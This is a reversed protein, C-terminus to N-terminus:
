DPSAASDADVSTEIPHRRWYNALVSGSVNMWPSFIAAALGVTGLKGMAGALGSAMGGNQLGVEFAVTRASNRDLGMARSLWYGLCYGATNHIVAALFLLGGIQFLDDHGAATTVATFYIIGFMSALPMARDLWSLRLTLLHYAVGVVVAGLLFGPVGFWPHVSDSFSSNLLNWGGLALFAMWAIGAAAVSWVVRRGAPSAHKLYDHLLAAGIPVVVIKIIELMMGTFTVFQKISEGALAFMWLPTMIPAVITAVAVLTISLALNGRALYVMVNSALGSSCSGILVVGAAIEPPFHFLKTLAFGVLPMITFQCFIGVFVGWPMQVIGVFDRLGMQTGMGFMVAQIIILILWKNRLDYPGVHLFREPYIVAAVVAAIIWATFQYGQLAPIAGLGIALGICAVVAAPQWVLTEGMALGAILALLGM